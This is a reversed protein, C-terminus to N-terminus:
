VVGECLSQTFASFRFRPASLPVHATHVSMVQDDVRHMVRHVHCRCKLALPLCVERAGCVKRRGGVQTLARVRAGTLIAVWKPQLLAICARTCRHPHGGVQALALCHLCARVQASSWKPWLLAICARACRDPHGVQCRSCQLRARDLKLHQPKVAQVIVPAAVHGLEGCRV